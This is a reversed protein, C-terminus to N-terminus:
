AEQTTVDCCYLCKDPQKVNMFVKEECQAARTGRKKSTIPGRKELESASSGAAERRITVSQLLSRTTASINQIKECSMPANGNRGLKNSRAEMIDREAAQRM